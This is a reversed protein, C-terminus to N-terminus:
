MLFPNNRREDGITTQPGHGPYVITEDPLVLLKEKIGNILRRHSGGPFDTRGISFQFVTDGSFLVPPNEDECYLCIGGETHGPIHIVTFKLEGVRLEDGEKLLRDAPPSTFDRGVFLSLNRQPDSLMEADAEHICLEAEPYVAKLDSNALIHDIHGHTDVLLVPRLKQKEIRAVIDAGDGGPDIVMADGSKGDTVIYCNSMIEGVVLCIVRMFVGRKEATRITDVVVVTKLLAWPKVSIYVFNISLSM